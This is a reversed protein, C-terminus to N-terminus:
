RSELFALYLLTFLVIGGGFFIAFRASLERQPRDTPDSYPFLAYMIRRLIAERGGRRRMRFAVLASVSALGWVLWWYEKLWKTM